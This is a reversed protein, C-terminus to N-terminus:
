MNALFLTDKDRTMLCIYSCIAERCGASQMPPMSASKVSYYEHLPSISEGVSPVCYKKGMMPKTLGVQKMQEVHEGASLPSARPTSIAHQQSCNALRLICKYKTQPQYSIHEVLLQPWEFRLSHARQAYSRRLPHMFPSFLLHHTCVLSYGSLFM